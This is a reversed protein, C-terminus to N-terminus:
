RPAICAAEREETEDVEIYEVSLEEGAAVDVRAGGCGPCRFVPLEPSWERDCDRCRLRAQVEVLELTAGECETDRAVIEWYFRLSEPVVQRLAGTEVCVNTVRRGNAHKVATNLVASAVSLEHM